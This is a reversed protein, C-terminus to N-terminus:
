VVDILSQFLERATSLIRASAQYAQQFELLAAAEEDLNVGSFEAEAEEAANRSAEASERAIKGSNVTEGLQAVITGFVKQFGGSNAGNIDTNQLQIIKDLNRADGGGDSNEKVFFEDHIQANGLVKFEKDGFQTTKNELTRTAISHGTAADLIEVRTGSENLVKLKLEDIGVFPVPGDYVAGLSKSGSGTFVILLDENPLGNLEVISGALSTADADVRFAKGDNAKITIADSSFSIDHDTVKFGLQDSPKAFSLSNAEADYEIILRGQGDVQTSSEWRVSLGDTLPDLTVNGDGDLSLSVANGDFMVDLATMGEELALLSSTHRTLRSEFGFAVASASNGAVLSDPTVLIASASLSGGGFIQLKNDSDFYASLRGAEGGTVVIENNKMTLTYQEGEYTISLTTDEAPIARATSTSVLDVVGPSGLDSEDNFSFNDVTFSRGVTSGTFIIQNVGEVLEASADVGVNAANVANIIATVVGDADTADTQAGDINELDISVSIGNITLSVGDENPSVGELSSFSYKTVQKSAAAANASMSSLPAQERLSRVLARNIEVRSLSTLSSSNLSTSFKVAANETPVSLSYIASSAVADNGDISSLNSDIDNNVEFVVTKTDGVLNSTVEALGGMNKNLSALKTEVPSSLNFSESASFILQGSFRANSVRQEDIFSGMSVSTESSIEEVTITLDNEGDEGGIDSGNILMTDGVQYGNGLQNLEVNVVGNLITVDFTANEGGGVINSASLTTQALDLDGFSGAVSVRGLPTIAPMKNEDVIQASFTPSTESLNSLVIDEGFESELFIRTKDPSLQASVKTSATAQNIESALNSLDSSTIDAAIKIPMRNESEIDFSISGATFDFLETVLRANVQLGLENFKESASEAVMKASSGAAVSISASEGNTMDVTLNHDITNNAPVATTGGASRAFSGNSGTVVSYLGGVRSIDLEMGRYANIESNLYKGQYVAEPGFGNEASILNTIETQTLSTGAIHRGERTFIQFDSANVADKVIAQVAGVGASLAPVGEGSSVFNGSASAFTLTGGDGAARIGLDALSLGAANRFVGGNFLNALDKVDSWSESAPAEPFATAYRIDFIHPGDNNSGVRQFSLEQLNQVVLNQLSFKATSQSAFSAIKASPTGAPVVSVLGSSVFNTSELPALSNKLVNSVTLKDTVSAKGISSVEVSADSTNNMAAEVKLLGSAAIQQPKTILLQINSAASAARKIEFYDGNKPDGSIYIAFGEGRLTEKGKIPKALEGGDLSWLGTQKDFVATLRESPLSLPDTVEIQLRVEPSVSPSLEASLGFTSFMDLGANGDLDVGRRHQANMQSSVLFALNDIENELEEILSYSDIAGSLLGGDVQNTPRMVAGEGVTVQVTGFAEIYGLSRFKSGDVLIPGIGSQGLSVSAVGLGTYSVSVSSFTSMQGITKDRLDLLANPTQGSQGSSLIQSNISALEKALVSLQETGAQLQSISSLQFQKLQSALGQFSAVLSKGVELAVARSAIDTPSAAVDSLSSFFRGIQENLGGKSPLMINEIQQLNRVFADVKQFSANTNNARSLLFGDFARRIDSVRVGLGSQSALSTIGGQSGSVEELDATRRKYGDTNINAINQGTVALAQRYSQVASKGVDFLSSM